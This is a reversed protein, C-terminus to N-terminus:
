ALDRRRTVTLTALGALLLGAAIWALDLSGGTEPIGGGSGAGDQGGNEEGGPDPCDITTNLKALRTKGNLSTYYVVANIVDGENVKYTATYTEDDLSKEEKTGDPTRWWVDGSDGEIWMTYEVFIDQDSDEAPCVLEITADPINCDAPYYFAAGAASNGDIYGTVGFPEGEVGHVTLRKNEGPGVVVSIDEDVGDTIRITHSATLSFNNMEFYGAPVKGDCTLGVNSQYNTDVVSASATGTSVAAVAVSGLALATLTRIPSRM